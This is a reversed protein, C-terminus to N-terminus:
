ALPSNKDFTGVLSFPQSNERGKRSFNDLPLRQYNKIKATDRKETNRNPKKQSFKM